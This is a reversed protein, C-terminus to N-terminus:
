KKIKKRRSIGIGLGAVILLSLGGDFPVDIIPCCDAAGSCDTEGGTCAPMGLDCPLCDSFGSINIGILLILILLLRQIKIFKM